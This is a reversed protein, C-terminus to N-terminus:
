FKLLGTYGLAGIERGSSVLVQQMGLQRNNVVVEEGFIDLMPPIPYSRVVQDVDLTKSYPQSHASIAANLVPTLCNLFFGHKWEHDLCDHNEIDALLVM